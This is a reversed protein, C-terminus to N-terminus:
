AAASLEVTAGKRQNRKKLWKLWEETFEKIEDSANKHNKGQCQIIRDGSYEITYFPTEMDDTRRVFLITTKGKKVQDVYSGVCHNLKKGEFLIEELKMPVVIALHKNRYKLKMLQELRKKYEQNDLEHKIANFKKVADDHAKILNKPFAMHETFESKYIKVTMDLYDFYHMKGSTCVGVVEDMYRKIKAISMGTIMTVKVLDAVEVTDKISKILELDYVLKNKKFHHIAYFQTYGADIQTLQSRYKKIITPRFIRMDITAGSSSLVDRWLKKLGAKFLLEIWPYKAAFALYNFVWYSPVGYGSIRRESDNDIYSGITTHRLETDKLWDEIRVPYLEIRKRSAKGNFSDMYYGFQWEKPNPYYGKRIIYSSGSMITKREVEEYWIEFQLSQRNIRQSAIFWREVIRDSIKQLTIVWFEQNFKDYNTNSRIIKTKLKVHCKPCQYYDDLAVVGCNSCIYEKAKRFMYHTAHNRILETMDFELPIEIGLQEITIQNKMKAMKKM